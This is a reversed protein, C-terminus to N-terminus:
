DVPNFAGVFTEIGAVGALEADLRLYAEAHTAQFREYAELSKWYDATLYTGDGARWLECRDFGPATEFLKAWGGDSKYAAVFKAQHVLPVEFRWLRLHTM